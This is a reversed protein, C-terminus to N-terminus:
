VKPLSFPSDSEFEFLIPSIACNGAVVGKNQVHPRGKELGVLRMHRALWAGITRPENLSYIPISGEHLRADLPALVIGSPAEEKRSGFGWVRSAGLHRALQAHTVSAEEPLISSKSQSM